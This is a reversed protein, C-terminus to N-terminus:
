SYAKGGKKHEPSISCNFDGVLLCHKDLSSIKSIEKWLGRIKKWNNNTYIVSIIFTFSNNLTITCRCAQSSAWFIDVNSIWKRWFCIIGRSRGKAPNIEINWSRGFLRHVSFLKGSNVHTELFGIFAPRVRGILIRLQRIGESKILGRCNWILFKM